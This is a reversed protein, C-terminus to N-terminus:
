DGSAAKGVRGSFSNNRAPRPFAGPTGATCCAALDRPPCVPRPAVERGEGSVKPPDRSVGHMLKGIKREHLGM